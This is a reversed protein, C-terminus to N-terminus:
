GKIGTMTVGQVFLRQGFVYFVLLPLMSMTVAAMLTHLRTGVMSSGSFISLALTLVWLEESRTIILPWVFMNWAGLMTIVGYATLAPKSLPIFIRAYITPHTAGDILAADALEDPVQKFFQRFLFTGFAGSALIPVILGQYSDQWNLRVVVLYAPIMTVQAPIMMTGIYALFLKDRAPFHLRAFGYGGMTTVLGQGLVISATFFVTNIFPRVGIVDLAEAYNGWSFPDPIWEPPYIFVQSAPKLSTSLMFAFPILMTAGGAALALYTVARGVADQAHRGRLLGTKATVTAM